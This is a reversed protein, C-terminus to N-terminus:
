PQGTGRTSLLGQSTPDLGIDSCFIGLNCLGTPLANLTTSPQPLYQFHGTQTPSLEYSTTDTAQQQAAAGFNTGINGNIQVIDQSLLNWVTQTPDSPVYTGFVNDFSRNEGVVVILHRIPSRTDAVTLPADKGRFIESSNQGSSLASVRFNRPAAALMGLCVAVSILISAITIRM